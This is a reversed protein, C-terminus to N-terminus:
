TRDSPELIRFCRRIMALKVTALYNAALKAHRTALQRNEKLWGVCREVVNRRRYAGKDFRPNVGQDKRTPIVAQIGRRRLYARIGPYSYGKDGALRKPRQRPRGKKGPLRVAELTPALHKCEHAQGATITAALPIGHGDVVLHVKTGFGGRSRGLAQAEPAYPQNKGGRRM